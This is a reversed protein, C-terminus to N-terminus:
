SNVVGPRPCVGTYRGPLRFKFSTKLVFGPIGMWEAGESGACTWTRSAERATVRAPHESDACLASPGARSRGAFAISVSGTLRSATLRVTFMLPVSAASFSTVTEECASPTTLRM